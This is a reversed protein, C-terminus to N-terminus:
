PRNGLAELKLSAPDLRRSTVVAAPSQEPRHPHAIKSTEQGEFSYGISSFDDDIQIAGSTDSYRGSCISPRYRKGLGTARGTSQAGSSGPSINLENVQSILREMADQTTRATKEAVVKSVASIQDETFAIVPHGKPLNFPESESFFEKILARGSTRLGTNKTAGQMTTPGITSGSDSIDM